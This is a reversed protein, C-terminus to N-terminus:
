SFLTAFLAEAIPAELPNGDVVPDGMDPEEILEGDPVPEEVVPLEASPEPEKGEVPTEDVPEEVIPGDIIPGEVIPGEIVPGEVVPDDIVPGEVIPDDTVPADVVPEDVEILELFDLFGATASIDAALEVLDLDGTLDVDDSAVDSVAVGDSFTVTGTLSALFDSADSLLQAFDIFVPIGSEEAEPLAPDVPVEPPLVPDVPAEPVMPDTPAEPDIMEVLAIDLVGELVGESLIFEGDTGAVIPTVLNSIVSAFDFPEGIQGFPEVAVTAFGDDVTFTLPLDVLDIDIGDGVDDSLTVIGNSLDFTTEFGGLPITFEADEGFPFSEEISGFPTDLDIGLAGDLLSFEGEFEGAESGFDVAIVGENLAFTGEIDSLLPLLVTETLENLDLTGTLPEGEELTLAATAVGGELGVSATIGTLEDILEAIGAVVDVEETFTGEAGTLDASIVGGAFTISGALSDAFQTLDTEAFSDPFFAALDSLASEAPLIAVAATIADAGTEVTRTVLDPTTASELM